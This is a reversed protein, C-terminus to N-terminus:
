STVEPDTAVSQVTKSLPTPTRFIPQRVSATPAGTPGIDTEFSSQGYVAVFTDVVLPDYMSGRRDGLGEFADVEALRPRYPRDSALTDFCDVVSLIRARVQRM